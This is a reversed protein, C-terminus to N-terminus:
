INDFNTHTAITKDVTLAIRSALSFPYFLILPYKLNTIGYHMLCIAHCAQVHLIQYGGRRQ